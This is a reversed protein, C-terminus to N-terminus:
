EALAKSSNWLLDLFEKFHRAVYPNEVWGCVSYDRMGIMAEKEDVLVDVALVPKRLRIEVRKPLDNTSETVLRVRVGRMILSNLVKSIRPALDKYSPLVLIVEKEARSLMERIKKIVRARGTISYIIEPKELKKKTSEYIEKLEVFASKVRRVSDEEILEPSRARYRKPRGLAVEVWGKKALSELADYASPYPIGALGAVNRPTASRFSVLAVYVKAEYETLGLGRLVKVTEEVIM